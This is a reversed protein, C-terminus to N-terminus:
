PHGWNGTELASPGMVLERMPRALRRAKLKRWLARKEDQVSLAAIEAVRSALERVIGVDETSLM